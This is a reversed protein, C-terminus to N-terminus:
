LSKLANRVEVAKANVELDNMKATSAAALAKFSEVWASGMTLISNAQKMIFEYLVDHKLISAEAGEVDLYFVLAEDLESEFEGREVKTEEEALLAVIDTAQYTNVIKELSNKFALFQSYVNSSEGLELKLKSLVSLDKHDEKFHTTTLDLLISECRKRFRNLRSTKYATITARMRSQLNKRSAQSRATPTAIIAQHRSLADFRRKLVVAPPLTCSIETQSQTFFAFANAEERNLVPEVLLDLDDSDLIKSSRSLKQLTHLYDSILPGSLQLCQVHKPQTQSM